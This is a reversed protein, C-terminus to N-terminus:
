GEGGPDRAGYRMAQWWNVRRGPRGCLMVTFPGGWPYYENRDAFLGEHDMNRIQEETAERVIVSSQHQERNADLAQDREDASQQEQGDEVIYM